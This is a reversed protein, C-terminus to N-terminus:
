IGAAAGGEAEQAPKEVEGVMEMWVTDVPEVVMLGRLLRVVVTYAAKGLAERLENSLIGERLIDESLMGELRGTALCKVFAPLTYGVTEVDNLSVRLGGKCERLTSVSDYQRQLRTSLLPELLYPSRKIPRVLTGEVLEVEITEAEAVDEPRLRVVVSALLSYYLKVTVDDAVQEELRLLPLFVYLGNNVGSREFLTYLFGYGRYIGRGGGYELPAYAEVFVLAGNDSRSVFWSARTIERIRSFGEIMRVYSERLNLAYVGITYIGNAYWIWICMFISKVLRDIANLYM